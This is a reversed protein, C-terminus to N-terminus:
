KKVQLPTFQFGRLKNRNLTNRFEASVIIGRHASSGSGFWEQTLFIPPSSSPPASISIMGREKRIRKTTQCSACREMEMDDDVVCEAELIPIVMQLLDEINQGTKHNTVPITEFTTGGMERELLKMTAPRSFVVDFIWHLGFFSARRQKFDSKLRIPKTQRHGTACTSCASSYDYSDRGHNDEPQPYQYEGVSAMLWEASDLEKKSFVTGVSHLCDFKQLHDELLPWKTDCETIEFAVTKGVINEKYEHPIQLRDVLEKFSTNGNSFFRHVIKV